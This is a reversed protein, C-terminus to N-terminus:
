KPMVDFLFKGCAYLLGAIPLWSMAVLSIHDITSDERTLIDAVQCLEAPVPVLGEDIRQECLALHHLWTDGLLKGSVQAAHMRCFEKFSSKDSATSTHQPIGSTRQTIGGEFFSYFRTGLGFPYALTQRDQSLFVPHHWTVFPFEVTSTENGMLGFALVAPMVWPSHRIDLVGALEFGENELESFQYAFRNRLRSEVTPESCETIQAIFSASEVM